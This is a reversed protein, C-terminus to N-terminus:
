VKIYFGTAFTYFDQTGANDFMPLLGVQGFITLRRYGIRLVADAAWRNLGLDGKLATKNDNGDFSFKQKYMNGLRVKGIVGATIHFSKKPDLSTNFELMVPIGLYEARLKNKSVNKEGTPAIFMSDSVFRLENSGSFKYNYIQFTLGTTIGVYDKVIRGKVQAFNFSIYRSSGYRPELMGTSPDQSLNMGYDKNLIGNVGLDVGNWWTLQYKPDSDYDDDDDMDDPDSKSIITIYSNKLEIRTTDAVTGDENQGVVNVGDKDFSISVSQETKTSDTKTSDPEQAFLSLGILLAAISFLTKM